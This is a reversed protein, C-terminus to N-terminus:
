IGAVIDRGALFAQVNLEKFKSPVLNQVAQLWIGAPEELHTSLVGLLVVGALAPNGLEDAKAAGEVWIVRGGATTLISEIKKEEPYEAQGLNVSPPMVRHINVLALSDPALYLLTRSGVNGGSQCGPTRRGWVLSVRKTDCIEMLGTEILQGRLQNYNGAKIERDSVLVRRQLAVICGPGQVPQYKSLSRDHM